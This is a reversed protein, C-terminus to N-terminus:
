PRYLREMLGIKDALERRAGMSLDRRLHSGDRYIFEQDVYTQCTEDCLGTGPHVVSVFDRKEAVANLVSNAPGHRGAFQAMTIVAEDEACDRRLLTGAGSVACFLPNRGGWTPFDALLVIDRDEARIGDVLDLLAIELLRSGNAASREGERGREYLQPLKGSWSAALLVLSIDQNLNLIRLAREFHAACGAESRAPNSDVRQVSGGYAPACGPLLVVSIDGREAVAAEVIPAYHEAHSDGWLLVKVKADSWDAGFSCFRVGEPLLGVTRRCDWNWMTQANGIPRLTEPIRSPVGSNVSVLFAIGGVLISAAFGAVM